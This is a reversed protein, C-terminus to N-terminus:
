REVALMIKGIHTSTEMLAHADAAHDLPFTRFLVPAVKEASLLPWIHSELERAITAKRDDSQPRLTAGTIVLRKLMVKRMDIDGKSGQLFAIFVYRGETALLNINPQIYDGGVMDIIVDVGKGGTAEKAAAAWDDTKYNLVLDAGLTRCADAKEASGVTTIVQAGFAKALQIATTGIGSSGGHILLWEGATLGARMFVNSYVTFFTEPLAAARVMDYNAPVPLCHDAQTVCYEAYGGGPTLACVADGVQWRTVGEGLGVVYGSVELGPLDSAGPPPPYLGARQMVDPRNVGAAEVRILVEGPAPTPLPRKTPKLVEAGGPESIEIATMKEPLPDTVKFPPM